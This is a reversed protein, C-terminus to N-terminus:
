SCTQSFVMGMYMGQRWMGGQHYTWLSLPPHITRPACDSHPKPNPHTHNKTTTNNKLPTSYVCVCVMMKCCVRSCGCVCVCVDLIADFPPRPEGRFSFGFLADIIVDARTSLPQSLLAETQTQKNTHKNTQKTHTCTHLLHKEQTGCVLGVCVCACYVSSNCVM